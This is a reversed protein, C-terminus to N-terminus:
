ESEKFAWGVNLIELEVTEPMTPLSAGTQFRELQNWLWQGLVEPTPADVDNQIYPTRIRLSVQSVVFEEGNRKM